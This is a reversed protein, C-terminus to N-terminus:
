HFRQTANPPAQKQPTGPKTVVGESPLPEMSIKGEDNSFLANNGQTGIFQKRKRSGRIADAAEKANEFEMEGEEQLGFVRKPIRIRNGAKRREEGMNRSSDFGGLFGSAAGLEGTDAKSGEVYGRAAGVGLDFLLDKLGKRNAM